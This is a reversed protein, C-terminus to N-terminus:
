RNTLDNMIKIAYDFAINAEDGYEDTLMNRISTKLTDANDFQYFRVNGPVKNAIMQGGFLDGMHRVYLHGLILHKRSDDTILNELYTLYDKTSQVMEFQGSRNIEDFDEIIRSTREIGELNDLFGQERASSEITQYIPIMQFLYYAYDYQSIAGSLLLKAFETQEAIAHKEATLERLSM